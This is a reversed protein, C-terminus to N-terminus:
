VPWIMAHNSATAPCQFAAGVGNTHPPFRAARRCRWRSRRWRTPPEPAYVRTGMRRTGRGAYPSLCTLHGVLQHAVPPLICLIPRTEEPHDPEPPTVKAVHDSFFCARHNGM